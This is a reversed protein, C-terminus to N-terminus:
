YLKVNLDKKMHDQMVTRPVGLESSRKRTSKMPSREISAAVAARTELRTTKRGSLPRDRVSGLAFARKELDLLRARRPPAKNFGKRFAAMVQSMTQGTHQREHVCVSAALREEISYSSTDAMLFVSHCIVHASDQV